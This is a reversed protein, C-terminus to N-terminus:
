REEKMAHLGSNVDSLHFSLFEQVKKTNLSCDSGRTAAKKVDEMKVAQLCQSDYGFIGAFQLGFEYRNLRESGALHFLQNHLPSDILELIAQCGDRVYLPTRYQNTFLTLPTQQEVGERLWDTFCRNQGNSSGYMLATRLILYNTSIDKVAREAQVKTEAYYNCPKPLDTECYNGHTGDFVLDTSIFVFAAGMDEAYHALDRTARVNIAYAMSRRKECFDVNSLAATHVIVDPHIKSLVKDIQDTHHLDLHHAECGAIDIPHQWYTYAVDYTRVALKALNWGLFGSGGTILLQSYSSMM